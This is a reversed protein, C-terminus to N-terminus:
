KENIRENQITRIAERIGSNYGNSYYTNSIGMSEKVILKKLQLIIREKERSSM